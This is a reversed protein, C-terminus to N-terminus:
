LLKVNKYSTLKVEYIHHGNKNLKFEAKNLKM